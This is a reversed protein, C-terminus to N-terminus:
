IFKYINLWWYARNILEYCKVRKSHEDVISDHTLQIIRFRLRNSNSVYKKERFYLSNQHKECEVLSIRNHHRAESRLAKLIQTAFRVNSEVQNWLTQTLIDAFNEDSNSTNQDLQFEIDNSSFEEIADFTFNEINLNMFILIVLFLSQISFLHLQILNLVIIRCRTEIIRLNLVHSKLITQHQHLYRSDSTNKKKSLDSSRRTLVNSKDEIKDSRYLIRYNFRSFFESWRTQRRNLQKISMFYKLNKHNTIVEISFIFNELKSRWKEFARVIIMLEKDYIEYNCETLNHKKSFYVISHLINNEDYQSLINEFVYNSVDIKIVIKHDSNYHRLVVDFTFIEKLTEFAKQCKQFWVFIVNKKILRTLLVVIKSYDYIFRKHFNAFELFSQVNKVNILISWNIIIIIKVSNMKIEEIIIILELYSVQSVHFEYKIIDVQLDVERLKQLVLKVQLEHEFENDSYILIDNLYAICFKNLYERLIDNIYEQFSVFENCLDFLMILYEFLDFRTRFITLAEDEKKIRFRNFVFIINLKTFIKVHSLRNLIESILFLSYRNKVIIVNLDRYNVCFRLEKELKKVFLVLAITQSRNVRIFKKSLNENLYRRLEQAENHSMDYLAFVLLQADEKLHIVHDYVRHSSLINVEKKFFVNLYEHYRSSLITISDINKSQRYLELEKQTIVVILHLEQKMQRSVLIHDRDYNNIKINVHSSFSEEEQYLRSITVFFQSSCSKILNLFIDIENLILNFMEFNKFRSVRDFYRARLEVIDFQISFRDVQSTRREVFIRLSSFSRYKIKFSHKKRITQLVRSFDEQKVQSYFRLLIQTLDSDFRLLVHIFSFKLLVSNNFSKKRTSQFSFQRKHTTSYSSQKKRVFSFSSHKKHAILISFTKKLSSVFNMSVHNIEISNEQDQLKWIQQSEKFFLFEEEERTIDYIKVSTQCCHAFCFFSFMILTNLEFNVDVVHRRLWSLNMVIFYQNLRTVYFFLREIHEELIMIIEAVHTIDSTLAVQSDFERFRRSYILLHLSFNHYQAFFKDIFAYASAENDILVLAHIRSQAQRLICSVIIHNNKFTSNSEFLELAIEISFKKYSQFLFSFSFTLLCYFIYISERIRSQKLVLSKESFALCKWRCQEHWRSWCSSSFFVEQQSM